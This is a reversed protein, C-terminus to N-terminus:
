ENYYIAEIPNIESAKLAPYLGSLFGIVLAFGIGLLIGEPVAPFTFKLAMSVATLGLLALSIGIVAAILALILSELIFHIFIDRSTAGVSKRIGIELMRESISILMTSFLGLGGVILSISAITTLTINWKEMFNDLEETITVMQAGVDQFSFNHGMKHNALLIQRTRNKMHNYSETDHSQIYIYDIANDQRLYLAGTSLPIYVAELDQRREWENFNMGPGLNLVDDALVGIIKYRNAGLTIIEGMPESDPFYKQAFNHGVVAVKSASRQEFHNFFRGKAIPYTKTIFYDLNTARLRVWDQRNDLNIRSWSDIMAYLHKYEVNSRLVQMDSLDLPKVQRRMYMFRRGVGLRSSVTTQHGESPYIIISNNWGMQEVNQTIFKKIGYVSSFMVVVSFIGIIIAILTLFSRLKHAFINIFSSKFSDVLFM